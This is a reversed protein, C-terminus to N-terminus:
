SVPSNGIFFIYAGVSIRDDIDQGYDADTYGHLYNEEGQKFFLGVNLYRRVYRLIHKAVQLHAERPEQMFRSVVSVAHAIDPPTESSTLEINAAFDHLHRPFRRIRDSRRPLIHETPATSPLSSGPLHDTSASEPSATLNPFSVVESASPTNDTAPTQPNDSYPPTNLPPLQTDSPLHQTEQSVLFPLNELQTPAPTSDSPPSSLCDPQQTLDVQSDEDIFVDRSIFIKKTSPRYCRYAKAVEDFSLLICKEARSDLKTKSPKSVHAFVHSGFIRLHAITPKKGLFLENPTKDPYRKTSRLNLIDGAAKVAEAWLHGPLGKDLLLCRTIDLLSRNRRKAIGNRQPTYPPTLEHAIGKLSCFASFAKSTYEGRNDTRLARVTQGTSNEVLRIFHQFKDLVQSKQSIFYVWIKRSFDDTFTVFYKAGGTSSIRFPGCVDSHILELIKSAQFTAIKPIKTRTHKGFKCGECTQKPIHIHPLGKVAESAIMRQMGRAHFHGLRKHWLVAQSRLHLSNVEPKSNFSHGQIRYLGRGNKRQAFAEVRSTANDLVFCRTNKFILTKHQDTLSGVSLLNKTIGPTYLVSSITEIKGFQAQIEVNGVGTVNHSHGRASRIQSGSVPRIASFM